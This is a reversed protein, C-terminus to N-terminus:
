YVMRTQETVSAAIAGVDFSYNPTLPIQKVPINQIHAQINLGVFTASATIIEDGEEFFTRCLLGLLSESGSGIVLQNADCNLHTALDQRLGNALASPYNSAVHMAQEVAERVRESYGWRNENSALKSIRPPQYRQMVEEITRGPVYGRMARI